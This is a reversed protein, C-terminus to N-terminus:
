HQVTKVHITQQKRCIQTAHAAASMKHSALWSTIVIAQKVNATDAAPTARIQMSMAPMAHAPNPNATKPVAAALTQISNMVLVAHQPKALM